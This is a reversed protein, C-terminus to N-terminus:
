RDSRPLKRPAGLRPAVFNSDLKLPHRNAYRTEVHNEITASARLRALVNAIAAMRKQRRVAAAIEPQVQAFTQKRAPIRRLFKLVHLADNSGIVGSVGGARLASVANWLVGDSATLSLVRLMGTVEKAVATPAEHEMRRAAAAARARIASAFEVPTDPGLVFSVDHVVVSEPADFRQRHHDYYARAEASTVTTPSDVGALAETLLRLRTARRLEELGGRRQRLYARWREETRLERRLEGVVSDIAADPITIKRERAEVQILLEDILQRAITRKLAIARGASAPSDDLRETAHAYLDNFRALAVEQGNVTAIVDGEPGTVDASIASWSILVTGLAACLQRCM